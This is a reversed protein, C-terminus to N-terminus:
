DLTMAVCNITLSAPQEAGGEPSDFEYDLTQFSGDAVISAITTDGDLADVVSEGIQDLRDQVEGDATVSDFITVAITHMTRTDDEGSLRTRDQGVSVVECDPLRDKGRAFTRLGTVRGGLAPVNATIADKVAARLQQRTSPM